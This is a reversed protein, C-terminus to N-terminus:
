FRPQMKKPWCLTKSLKSRGRCPDFGFRRKTKVSRKITKKEPSQSVADATYQVHTMSHLLPQDSVFKPVGQFDGSRFVMNPSGRM